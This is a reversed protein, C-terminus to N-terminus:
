RWWLFWVPYPKVCMFPSKPAIKTVSRFQAVGIELTLPRIPTWVMIGPLLTDLWPTIGCRTQLDELVTEASEWNKGVLVTQFNQLKWYTLPYLLTQQGRSHFLSGKSIRAQKSTLRKLDLNFGNKKFLYMVNLKMM